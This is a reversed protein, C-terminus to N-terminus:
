EDSEGIIVEVINDHMGKTTEHCIHIITLGPFRDKLIELSKERLDSNLSAMCEDLLLIKSGTIKSLALTICFSIRNNEGGSLENINDYIDDDYIAKLNVQLKEDGKKLTKHSDLKISIQDDFLYQLNDNAINNISEIVEEMANTSVEQIIKKIQTLAEEYKIKEHLKEKKNKLEEEQIELNLLINGSDLIENLHNILKEKENIQEKIKTSDIEPTPKLKEKLIEIESEANKKTFINNNNQIIKEKLEELSLMQNVQLKIEYYREKNKLSKLNKLAEELSVNVIYDEFVINPKKVEKIIKKELPHIKIDIIEIELYNPVEPELIDKKEELELKLKNYTEKNNLSKLYLNIDKLDIDIDILNIDLFDKLFEDDFIELCLEEPRSVPNSIKSSLNYYIEYNNLSKLDDEIEKLSVDLDLFNMDDLKKPLYKLTTDIQLINEDYEIIELVPKIIESSKSLLLKGRQLDKLYNELKERESLTTSGKSFTSDKFIIGKFCHPCFLERLNLKVNEIESNFNERLIDYKLEIESIENINHQYKLYMKNELDYIELRDKNESIIENIEKKKNIIKSMELNYNEIERYEEQYKKYEEIFIKYKEVNDVILMEPFYINRKEEIMSYFNKLNLLKKMEVNRNVTDHKKLYFIEELKKRDKEYDLFEKLKMNYITKEAEIIKKKNIIELCKLNYEKFKKFEEVTEKKILTYIKKMELLKSIEDETNVNKHLEELYFTESIKKKLVLLHNYKELETNYKKKLNNNFNIKENIQEQIIKLELCKKQYEILNNKANESDELYKNYDKWESLNKNKLRNYEECSTLNFTSYLNKIKTLNEIEQNKETESLADHEKLYGLSDIELKLNYERELFEQDEILNNKIKLKNEEIRLNIHKNSTEIEFIELYLDNLRNKEIINEEIKTKIKKIEKKTKKNTYKKWKLIEKENLNLQQLYSENYGNYLNTEDIIEKKTKLIEQDTKEEYSDVNENESMGFTLEKLIEFKKNNPLSILYNSQNQRIYSSSYWLEKSGFLNYIYDQAEKDLYLFSDVTVKLCDPPKSRYIEVGKFEIKVSTKKESSSKNKKPYIQQEKGYLCWAIAELVTSKGAGSPGTLLNISDDDFSYVTKKGYSRFRKITIKM